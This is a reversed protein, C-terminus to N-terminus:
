RKYPKNISRALNCLKIAANPGGMQLKGVAWIPETAQQQNLQM